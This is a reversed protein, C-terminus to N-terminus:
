LNLLAFQLDLYYYLWTLVTVSVVPHTIGGPVLLGGVSIYVLHYLGTFCV